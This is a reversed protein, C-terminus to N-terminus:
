ITDQRDQHSQTPAPQGVAQEVATASNRRWLRKVQQWYWGKPRTHIVVTGAAIDHLARRKKHFSIWFFLFASPAMAVYRLVYRWPEPTALTHQRRISLGFVYKGPTTQWAWQCGVIFIGMVVLQVVANLTWLQPLGAQWAYRLAEGGTAAHQSLVLADRNAHAYLWAGFRDFPARLLLFLLSIDVAAAIGREYIDAYRPGSETETAKPKLGFPLWIPKM